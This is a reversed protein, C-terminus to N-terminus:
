PFVIRGRFYDYFPGSPNAFTFLGSLALKGKFAPFSSLHHALASYPNDSRPPPAFGIQLEDIIEQSFGYHTLLHTLIDPYNKLQDHYWRTVVTLIEEVLIREKVEAERREIEEPSLNKEYLHPLGVRDALFDRATKHDCRKFLMVLDIVDGKAGCHFCKFRQTRPRIVLCKGGSSGHNPCDGQFCSGAKKGNYGLSFAINLIQNQKIKEYYDM